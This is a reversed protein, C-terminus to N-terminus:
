RPIVLDAQLGGLAQSEGLRLTGGHARATDATITLGLGVGSGRNQNRGPELRAFAKLAAERDEPPIGPGDDEVRFRVARDYVDVSVRARTGYRVANGVLNGLAREVSMPRLSVRENEAVALFEVSAGARRVGEVVKRALAVPDTPVKEETAEGRAFDLFADLLHEMDAVDRLLAQTEPTEELMSLGLRLRTLPTRLDHSVGSLMRTRSEMAREIRSRMELFATGAQRVETAGSPRYGAAEGKGFATAAQALRRIPRLQNRLFLYAIITMLIGTFIMLVLLQHPNSASVRSRSFELRMPGFRTDILLFVQRWDSTLDVSVLGPLGPRITDIMARGSLDWFNWQDRAAGKGPLEINMDLPVGLRAAVDQAKALTPAGDVQSLIYSIELMLNHTMQDTVGEYHRQLFVLSVVLQLTVIPVILILAARGYLGRPMMSKLWNFTM